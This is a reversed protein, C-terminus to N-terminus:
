SNFKSQEEQKQRLYYFWKRLPYAIVAIFGVNMAVTPLFRIYFFEEHPITTFGLLLMIGYVFYELVVVATFCTFIGVLLNRQLFPHTISLLYAILGMAFTYVGLVSSFIVDYMVGFVIGYLTAMARGRYIGAFIIVVFVWRPLLLYDFGRFDPAFIQYVTGEAIFLVFLAIFLSYRIM